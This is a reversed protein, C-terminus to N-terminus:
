SGICCRVRAVDDRSSHRRAKGTRLGEWGAAVSRAATMARASTGRFKTGNWSCECRRLVTRSRSKSEAEHSLRPGHVNSAHAGPPPHQAASTLKWLVGDNCMSFLPAPEQVCGGDAGPFSLM